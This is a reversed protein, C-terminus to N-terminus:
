MSVISDKNRSRVGHRGSILVLIGVIIIGGGLMQRLSPITHFLLFSYLVVFFPISARVATVKSVEYLSLAKYLFMFSLFPASLAGIIIILLSTIPPWQWM